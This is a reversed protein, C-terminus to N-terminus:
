APVASSSEEGGLEEEPPSEEAEHMLERVESRGALWYVVGISAIALQILRYALAILLGMNPPAGPPSIAAFLLTTTLEYIGIPLAGAIMTPPVIVFISTWAPRHAPAIGISNAMVVVALVYMLHVVLSVGVAAALLEVRQRYARMAGVLKHLVKGVLPLHELRDWWQSQTVAPILMVVLGLTSLLSAARLTWSLRTIFLRDAAELRTLYESPLLLSAVAALLLLAYLGLTRDVLVTAVAETKRHHNRHILMLAKLSDGAVLGLPLFNALYALFGARLTERVTFKLGLAWILLHWRLITVTVAFLCIPLALLLLPWDKPGRALEQFQEDGVARWALYSILAASVVLKLGTVLSKKVSSQAM